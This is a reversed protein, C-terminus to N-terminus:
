QLRWLGITVQSFDFRDQEWLEGMWRACPALLDLFVQEQSAGADLLARVYSSASDADGEVALRALTHVHEDTM